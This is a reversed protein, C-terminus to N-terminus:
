FKSILKVKKASVTIVTNNIFLSTYKSLMGNTDEKTCNHLDQYFSDPAYDWKIPKFQLSKYTEWHIDNLNNM